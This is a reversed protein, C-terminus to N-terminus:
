LYDGDAGVFWAQDAENLKGKKAAIIKATSDKLIKSDLVKAAVCAARLGWLTFDTGTGIGYCNAPTIYPLLSDVPKNDKGILVTQPFSVISIGCGHGPAVTELDEMYKSYRQVIAELRDDFLGEPSLIWADYLRPLLWYMGNYIQHSPLGDPAPAKTEIMLGPSKELYPLMVANIYSGITYLDNLDLLGRKAAEVTSGVILSLGRDSFLSTTIKGDAKTLMGALSSMLLRILAGAIQKVGYQDGHDYVAFLPMIQFHLIDPGSVLVGNYDAQGNPKDGPQEPKYDVPRGGNEYGVMRAPASWYYCRRHAYNAIVCKVWAANLKHDHKWGYAPHSGTQGSYPHLGGSVWEKSGVVIGQADALANIIPNINTYM